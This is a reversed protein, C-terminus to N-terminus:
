PSAIIRQHRLEPCRDGDVLTYHSCDADLRGPGAPAVAVHDLLGKAAVEAEIQEVAHPLSRAEVLSFRQLERDFRLVLRAAGLEQPEDEVCVDEDGSQERAVSGRGAEELAPEVAVELEDHGLLKQVLQLPNQADRLNAPEDGLVVRGLENGEKASGGVDCCIRGIWRWRPRTVM